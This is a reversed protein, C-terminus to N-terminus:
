PGSVFRLGSVANAHVIVQQDPITLLPVLAQAQCVAFNADSNLTLEVSPAYEMRNSEALTRVFTNQARGILGWNQVFRDEAAAQWAARDGTSWSVDSCAADVATQLRTRLYLLRTGDIALSMLPLVVLAMFIAAWATSSGRESRRGRVM